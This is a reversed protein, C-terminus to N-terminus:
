DNESMNYLVRSIEKLRKRSVLFTLIPKIILWTFRKLRHRIVRFKLYSESKWKLNSNKIRSLEDKINGQSDTRRTLLFHINSQLFGKNSIIVNWLKDYPYEEFKIKENVSSKLYRNVNLFYGNVNIKNQIFSFYDYITKKNMEMFSRTNIIFDYKINENELIRPPLIFIDYDEICDTFKNKKYDLYNFIKKQPFHSQLYYNSMLNAEPLDILFYKVDRNNLIVRALSGFGGGIELVLFNNHIYKEINQFYKLSHMIGHDFWYGLFNKSYQCNGINKDPLTNKLFNEDFEELTELLNIKNKLNIADDLGASLVQDKRFNILNEINDFKKYEKNYKEWHVSQTEIFNSEDKKTERYVKLLYQYDNKNKM